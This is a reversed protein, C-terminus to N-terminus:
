DQQKFVTKLIDTVRKAPDKRIALEEKEIMFFLGDISKNTVYSNIDTDVQKGGTLLTATNYAKTVDTWANFVGVKDLSKEVVPNFADFLQTSTAKKLYTTAANQEGKLISWADQITMSTIASVFIPKASASADEAARNMKTVLNSTLSSLGVNDLKEKVAQVEPPFLIKIAANGLFGDKLSTVKVGNTTGQVLAEKLGSIVNNTSLGGDSSGDTLIAGAVQQLEECSTLSGLGLVVMLGFLIKKM